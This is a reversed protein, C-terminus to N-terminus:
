SQKRPQAGGQQEADRGFARARRRGTITITNQVDNIAPIAWALEGVDHKIRKHPVNGTVTVRGGECRVEVDSAGPVLELADYILEEVDHDNTPGHPLGRRYAISAMLMPATVDDPVTFPTRLPGATVPVGAVFPGWGPSSTGWGLGGSLPESPAFAAASAPAISPGLSSSGAGLVASPGAGFMPMPAQSWALPSPLGPWAPTTSGFPAIM